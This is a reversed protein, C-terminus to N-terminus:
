IYYEGITPESQRLSSFRKGAERLIEVRKDLEKKSFVQNVRIFDSHQKEASFYHIDGDIYRYWSGESDNFYISSKLRGLIDIVEEYTLANEISIIKYQDRLAEVRIITGKM